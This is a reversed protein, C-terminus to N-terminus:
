HMELVSVSQPVNAHGVQMSIDSDKLCQVSLTHEGAPVGKYVRSKSWQKWGYENFNMGETWLAAVPYLGYQGAWIDDVMPRCSFQQGGQNAYLFLDLNILLPGGASVFSVTAGPVTTWVAKPTVIFEQAWSKEARLAM